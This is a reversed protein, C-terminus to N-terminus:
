NFGKQLLLFTGTSTELMGLDLHEYHWKFKPKEPPVEDHQGFYSRIEDPDDFTPDMDGIIQVHRQAAWVVQTPHSSMAIGMGGIGGIALQGPLMDANQRREYAQWLKEREAKMDGNPEHEFTDHNFLGLIEFRDRSVSAFLVDNTRVRHGAQEVTLGLHFHHLGMVNLMFDKDAWSDAPPPAEAPPTYGKTRAKLSLYPTLDDGREVAALFADINPKLITARLDANLMRRGTVIRPRQGVHRLRWGIYSILLDTLHKAQLTQLSARDNPFRPIELVLERKFAAVRKRTELSM